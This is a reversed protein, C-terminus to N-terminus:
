KVKNVKSHLENLLSHIIKDSTGLNSIIYNRAIEGKKKRKNKDGLMALWNYTDDQNYVVTLAEVNLLNVADPSNNIKKATAIPLGYGAAETVSHIGAGFGGGIYAADAFSYLALLKGISDVIIHKNSMRDAIIKNDNTNKILEILESLLLADIRTKLKSIHRSTPEHPVFICRYNFRDKNIHGLAPILIDEDPEWTSGAVLTFQNSFLEKPLLENNRNNDVAAFIRDFRPDTATIIQSNIYLSEFFDTHTKGVTYIKNFLSYNSAFFQNVLEISALKSKAPKTAAILFLPIERKHCEYLYNHWLDYRIFVSLDPKYKDLFRKVNARSDAPLYIVADAFQYDKQNEYGSPSYFTVLIKIHKNDTKLKEIIYKAQEFEGMSASHFWILKDSSNRRIETNNFISKWNKQRMKLKPLFLSLIPVLLKMVPIIFINYIFHYFM